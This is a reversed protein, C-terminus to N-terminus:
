PTCAMLGADGADAAADAIAAPICGTLSNGSLLLRTLSTLNGLEAPVDGSLMNNQLYMLRVSGGDADVMNGLEAPISGTLMNNYLYLAKMNSANGLEMPIEGSLDNNHLLLYRLRPLDGLEAPIEGTLGNGHLQIRILRTASSLEAPIGGTLQNGHLYLYELSAMDGLTTPVGGTLANNSLILRELNDMESLDPVEGTLDNDRLTLRTLADLATIGAPVTGALGSDPLYIGAVRGSGAAVGQWDDVISTDESWNLATGDGVLEDMIGLLTRCDLVLAPTEEALGCNDGPEPAPPAPGLTITPPDNVDNVNIKVPISASSGVPDTAKVTVMHYKAGEPLSEYDLKETTTIQGTERNIKFSGADTGSLTYLLPDADIALVPKGVKAGKANEDVSRVAESGQNGPTGPDTDFVPATNATPVGGVMHQSGVIVYETDPTAADAAADNGDEYKAVAYLTTNVDDAVPIYSAGKADDIRCVTGAVTFDEDGDCANLGTQLTATIGGDGSVISAAAAGAGRYWQWEPVGEVIDKDIEGSEAAADAFIPIGVIPRLQSLKLAGGEEVNNLTVKVKLKSDKGSALDDDTVVIEIEYVNNGDKDGRSEFDPAKAPAKKFTLVGRGSDGTSTIEFKGGDDGAVTWTLTQTDVASDDGVTDPDDATYSVGATAEVDEGDADKVTFVMIGNEDISLARGNNSGAALADIVPGEAVDEVVIVVTVHARAQSPDRATLRVVYADDVNTAHEHDLADKKEVLIQGTKPDVKFNNADGAASSIPDGDADQISTEVAEFANPDTGADADSLSYLVADNNPDSAVVPEGVASGKGSNEAVMRVAVEDKEPTSPNQDPFSPAANATPREVVASDSVVMATDEESGMGDKYTVTARLYSGVDDEAPTYTSAAAKEIDTWTEKDASRSWQWKKGLKVIDDDKLTATIVNGTQPQLEDLEVTGPEEVNVVTVEVAQKSSQLGSTAIVEVEYVNNKNKDGPGEFNPAKKWTLAGDDAEFLGGDDGGTSWEIDGADADADEAGFQAVADTSNEPHDYKDDVESITPPDNVDNVNIKVPISASSGVPDTATVTVMHYRAGEPLAEYDLKETTTIQGTERNIKFSGADTGSLTYLLPDADIALVPKGVKAGKANEDVSRVAESGQNGPTGPDTDFVPATNATPVGGVMHQSGVIVYETDPTAADAAADNGDEYKAVAYLTTNVDDAVPIYSAGKADDIRCVTGAVTFDEDGDCANLGTQLTATIGGDGSVISAAAAGAGRYWQWEPVGEVIDKDIEGSEAAADAFIPIGVIPRLQSLKLEGVEEVNNLTVKVKLKSDKGSALDADTVVIEIEYVNNGDKDGRSEFDPAKAPAKKFTLVGRGSDGTSTIEFKGGDDGAVTWTLSDTDETEENQATGTIDETTDPDDATYSVGATAEVDEGDADKVTFAMIGNENISLERGNDSGAALAGIVPGEAVNEVVIVVTVHARAQSPDRATLRVVYADDVNTAHEHDLADKKEVLIQGTKPDVKFNAADGSASSIPDATGPITFPTATYDGDDLDSDPVDSLSYLVADNNPDSAVVPEGVASGKGSNEAVMRVAVEDKEPTSPNQDPFSPAANATPREVVASDSVVMATDEESGMGDKYTVTARLYSGVDDEAPTYTSAAAKEIDTWTEKDASRSWQWKKGLKVIDDDKLTATIVNGTQPQLEDLEVTGPEEVNVVTVEVAQKSSQLGSTAIVEVEYVNNKNKDGPGEFNPAKKWTLAGDDAEFLGGDDGGTSWEIDGADADADEAGFQAVADTSNEPHDYKLTTAASAAPAALVLLALAAAVVALRVMVANISRNLM